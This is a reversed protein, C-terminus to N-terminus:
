GSAPIDSTHGRLIRSRVEDLPRSRRKGKGAPNMSYAKEIIRALGEPERHEGREMAGLIERFRSFTEAKCSFPLVYREFFPM